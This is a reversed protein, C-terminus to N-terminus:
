CSTCRELQPDESNLLEYPAGGLIAAGERSHVTDEWWQFWLTFGDSLQKNMMRLFFKRLKFKMEKSEAVMEAWRDFAGSRLPV